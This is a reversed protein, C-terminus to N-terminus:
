LKNAGAHAMAVVDETADARLVGEVATPKGDTGMAVFTFFADVVSYLKNSLHNKIEFDVHVKISSKGIHDITSYISFIDGNKVPEKFHLDTVSVTLANALIIEDIAISAAKDMKAMIWGGFVGGSHNLDTPYVRGKLSLNRM